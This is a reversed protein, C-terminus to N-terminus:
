TKEGVIVIDDLCVQLSLRGIIEVCPCLFDDPFHNVCKYFVIRAFLMDVGVLMDVRVAMFVDVPTHRVGVTMDMGMHVIMTMEIKELAGVVCLIVGVFMRVTLFVAGVVM